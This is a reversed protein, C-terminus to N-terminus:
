YKIIDKIEKGRVNAVQDLTRLNDFGNLVAYISNYPNRSRVSKALINHVGALEFLSRVAGGAIIGTGPAAPKMVIESAGFRGVIEHPITGKVIPLSVMNKKATELAKRIADPVERAKGHGVGVNGEHDGVVVLATFKFIRGGKVVKTVRGIHVVKDSLQKEENNM